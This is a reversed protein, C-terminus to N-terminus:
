GAAEGLATSLVKDFSVLSEKWHREWDTRIVDVAAEASTKDATTAPIPSHYNIAFFVGRTVKPSPQVNVRIEKSNVPIPNTDRPYPQVKIAIENMGYSNSEGPFAAEWYKKPALADGLKHYSAADAIRFHATFNLGMMEVATQPMVSLLGAALDALAPTLVGNNEIHIRNRLVQISFAETRFSTIDGSVIFGESSRATSADASGILECQQLWDPTFMAPNVQGVIVIASGFIEPNHM